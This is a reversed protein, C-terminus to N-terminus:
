IGVLWVYGFARDALTAPKTLSEKLAAVSRANERALIDASFVPKQLVTKM